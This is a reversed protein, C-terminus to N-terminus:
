PVQRRRAAVAARSFAGTGRHAQKAPRASYLCSQNATVPIMNEIVRCDRDAPQKLMAVRDYIDGGAYAAQRSGAEIM